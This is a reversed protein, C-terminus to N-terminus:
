AAALSIHALEKDRLLGTIEETECMRCESLCQNCLTVTGNHGARHTKCCNQYGEWGKVMFIHICTYSWGVPAAVFPCSPCHHMTRTCNWTHWLVVHQSSALSACTNSVTGQLGRLCPRAFRVGYPEWALNWVLGQKTVGTSVLLGELWCDPHHATMLASCVLQSIIHSPYHAILCRERIVHALQCIRLPLFRYASM